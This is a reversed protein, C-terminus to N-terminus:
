INLILKPFERYLKNGKVAHVTALLKALQKEHLDKIAVNLQGSAILRAVL